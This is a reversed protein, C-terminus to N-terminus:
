LRYRLGVGALNGSATYTGNGVVAAGDQNTPNLQRVESDTVRTVPYFVHGYGIDLDVGDTLTITAGVGIVFKDMDVQLVSLTKTPIGSTEFLAGARATVFNDVLDVDGGLRASFADQFNREINLPGVALAGLGPVGTVVIDQPTTEIKDLISWQEYTANFELDWGSGVYRLGAKVIAPFWFKAEVKDGQVEAGDFLVHEPLRQKITADGDYIYAPLQVSLGLQVDM